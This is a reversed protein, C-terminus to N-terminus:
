FKLVLVFVRPPPQHSKQFPLFHVPVFAWCMGTLESEGQSGTCEPCGSPAQGLPLTARPSRPAAASLPTVARFVASSGELTLQM